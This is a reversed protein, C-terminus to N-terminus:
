QTTTQEQCLALERQLFKIEERQEDIIQQLHRRKDYESPKM